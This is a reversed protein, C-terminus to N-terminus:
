QTHVTMSYMYFPYACQVPVTISFKPISSEKRVLEGGGSSCLAHCRMRHPYHAIASISVNANLWVWKLWKTAMAILQWSYISYSSLAITNAQTIKSEVRACCPSFPHLYWSITRSIDEDLSSKMLLASSGRSVRAICVTSHRQLSQLGHVRCGPSPRLEGVDGEDRGTM